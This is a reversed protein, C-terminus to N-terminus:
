DNHHLLLLVLVTTPNENTFPFSYLFLLALFSRSKTTLLRKSNREKSYYYSVHSDKHLLSSFVILVESASEIFFIKFSNFFHFFIFLSFCTTWAGNLEDQYSKYWEASLWKAAIFSFTVTVSGNDCM